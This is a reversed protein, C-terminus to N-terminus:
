YCRVKIGTTKKSTDKNLIECREICAVSDEEVTVAVNKLSFMFHMIFCQPWEICSKEGGVM